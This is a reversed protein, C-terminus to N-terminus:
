NSICVTQWNTRYHVSQGCVVGFPALDECQVVPVDGFQTGRESGTLYCGVDKSVLRSGKTRTALMAYDQRTLGFHDSVQSQKTLVMKGRVANKVLNPENSFLSVVCSFNFCCPLYLPPRSSGNSLIAGTSCSRWFQTVSRSLCHPPPTSASTVRRPPRYSVNLNSGTGLELLRDFFDRHFSGNVVGCGKRDQLIVFSQKAFLAKLIPYSHGDGYTRFGIESDMWSATQDLTIDHKACLLRAKAAM